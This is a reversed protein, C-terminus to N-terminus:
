RESAAKCLFEMVFVRFFSFVFDVFAGVASEGPNKQHKTEDRRRKKRTKTREHKRSPIRTCLGRLRQAKSRKERLLAFKTKEPPFKTKDEGFTL